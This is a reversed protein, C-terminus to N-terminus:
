QSEVDTTEIAEIASEISHANEIKFDGIQTRRLSTLHAGSNLAKGFDYALSRVYTGKSCDLIFNINPFSSPDIDFKHISISAPKLNVEKGKRALHYAKQGNVKKASFAPPMQEIEGVFQQAARILAESDSSPLKFTQDIETELDYSPTTGGLKITGTYQKSLGILDNIQKTHSGVCIIVLGTALPDLTGAHGVKIKKRGTVRKATYRLKNVVDFSTWEIPKDVLLTLGFPKKELTL